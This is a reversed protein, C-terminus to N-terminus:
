RPAKTGGTLYIQLVSGDMGPPRSPGYGVRGTPLHEVVVNYGDFQHVARSDGVRVSKLWVAIETRRKDAVGAPLCSDFLAAVAETDHPTPAGQRLCAVATIASPDDPVPLWTLFFEGNGGPDPYEVTLQGHNQSKTRSVKEWAATLEASDLGPIAVLEPRTASPASTLIPSPVPGPEPDSECATVLGLVAVAALPWSRM